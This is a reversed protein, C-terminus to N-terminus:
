RAVPNDLTGHVRKDAHYEICVLFLYSSKLGGEVEVVGACALGFSYVCIKHVSM